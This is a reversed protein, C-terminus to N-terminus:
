STSSSKGFVFTPANKAQFRATIRWQGPMDVNLIKVVAKAQHLPLDINSVICNDKYFTIM